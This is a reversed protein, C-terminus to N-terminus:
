PSHLNFDMFSPHHFAIRCHGGRKRLELLSSLPSLYIRADDDELCLVDETKTIPDRIGDAILVDYVGLIRLVLDVNKTCSLIFKYLTNLEAFPLKHNIPPRLGLIIDLQRKPSECASNIFRM